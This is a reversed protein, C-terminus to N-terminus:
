TCKDQCELICGQFIDLPETPCMSMCDSLDDGPCESNDATTTTPKRTTTTRETTATPTADGGPFTSGIDGFKVNYYKVTADPYNSEMDEPTGSDEPCPGRNVGPQSPDKDLPYNSDLWLMNADHDDWMSMALVMGRELADGLTKMGGKEAYDNHDGFAVKVEDCFEDTISDVTTVGPVNTFSNAIVKGDQVYLRM